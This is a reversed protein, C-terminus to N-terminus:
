GAKRPRPPRDPLEALGAVEPAAAAEEFIKGVVELRAAADIDLAGSASVLRRIGELTGRIQAEPSGALLKPLSRLAEKQDLLLMLFQERLLAKFAALELDGGREARMQRLLNFGREDAVREPLRVYLVARLAAERLGGEGM